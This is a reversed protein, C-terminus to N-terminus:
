TKCKGILFKKRSDFNRERQKEGMSGLESSRLWLLLNLEKVVPYKNLYKFAAKMAREGGWM